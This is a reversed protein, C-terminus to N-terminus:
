YLNQHKVVFDLHIKLVRKQEDIVPIRIEEEKSVLSLADNM